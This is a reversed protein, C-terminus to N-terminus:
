CRCPRSWLTQRTRRIPVLRTVNPYGHTRVYSLLRNDMIEMPNNNIHEFCKWKDYPLIILSGNTNTEIISGVGGYASILKNLQIQELKKM